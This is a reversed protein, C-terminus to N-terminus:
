FTILSGDHLHPNDALFVTRCRDEQRGPDLRDQALRVAEM